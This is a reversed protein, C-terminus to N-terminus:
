YIVGRPIVYCQIARDLKIGLNYKIIAISLNNQQSFEYDNAM